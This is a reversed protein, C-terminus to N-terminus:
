RWSLVRLLVPSQDCSRSRDSAGGNRGGACGRKPIPAECTVPAPALPEADCRCCFGSSCVYLVLCVSRTESIIKGQLSSFFFHGWSHWIGKPFADPRRWTSTIILMSWGLRGDQTSPFRHFCVLHGTARNVLKPRTHKPGVNPSSNRLFEQECKM